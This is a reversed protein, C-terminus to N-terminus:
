KEGFTNLIVKEMELSRSGPFPNSYVLKYIVM